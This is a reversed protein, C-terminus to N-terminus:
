AITGSRMRRSPTSIMSKWTKLRWWIIAFRMKVSMIRVEGKRREEEERDQEEQAAIAALREEEAARAEEKEFLLQARRENDATQAAELREKLFVKVISIYEVPVLNIDPTIMLEIVHSLIKRINWSSDWNKFSAPVRPRRIAGVRQPPVNQYQLLHGALPLTGTM